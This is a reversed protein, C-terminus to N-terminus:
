RGLPDEGAPAVEHQEDDVRRPQAVRHAELRAGRVVRVPHGERVEVARQRRGGDDGDDGIALALIAM